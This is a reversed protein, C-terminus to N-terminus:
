ARKLKRKQTKWERRAAVRKETDNEV